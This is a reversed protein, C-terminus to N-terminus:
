SCHIKYYDLRKQTERGKTIFEKNSPLQGYTKMFNDVCSPSTFIIAGFKDLNQKEMTQPYINRYIALTKVENGKKRLEVPMYSRAINSRPILIKENSISLKKFLKVLGVSSDEIPEFNPTIDFSALTASTHKGISFLILHKIDNINAIQKLRKFFFMVAYSSTFILISYENLRTIEKDVLGYDELEAIEIMPHHYVNGLHSYLKPHLGTYLISKINM